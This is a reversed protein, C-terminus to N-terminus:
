PAGARNITVRGESADVAWGGPRLSSRLRDIQEPSWSTAALTLKGPEFRLTEVPAVGDPWADAAAQLMPEFDSAGPRGASSRLVSTQREMEVEPALAGSANPYTSRLLAAMAQQRRASEGRLQWAWLNLGILQLAVLAIVGARVPRWSASMFNRWIDTLARAGRHRAALDFQRLNWLSRAAILARQAAPLVAVPAGLWREAAAAVAPTASARLPTQPDSPLHTRALGGELRMCSVGHVDSWALMLNDSRAGAGEDAEFFHASAPDDPWSSPVVREVTLNASELAALEAMLWPKRVAAVWTAQGASAGPAVALHVVEEDDLLAEELVGVLAARLRAAPAKPLTIRHWSVDCDALVAIVSDAKPLLAPACRGQASVASGDASLAYSFERSARVGADSAASAPAQSRLRERPALLIVLISM